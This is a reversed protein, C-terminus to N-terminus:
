KYKIGEKQFRAQLRQRITPALSQGWDRTAAMGERTIQPMASLIKKGLATDYFKIIENIEETSLHESYIPYMMERIANKEGVEAAVVDNVEESIIEYAAPDVDPNSRKLADSSIQIFQRAILPAIRDGGTIDLLVDIRQKKEADLEDAHTVAASFPLLTILLLQLIKKM